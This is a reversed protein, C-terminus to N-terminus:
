TKPPPVLPRKPSFHAIQDPIECNGLLLFGCIWTKNPSPPIGINLFGLENCGPGQCKKAFLGAVWGVTHRTGSSRNGDGRSSLQSQRKEHEFDDSSASHKSSCCDSNKDEVANANKGKACCKEDSNLAHVADNKTQGTEEKAMQVASHPPVIGHEAAWAVKERM